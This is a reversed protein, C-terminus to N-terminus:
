LSNPAPGLPEPVPEIRGLMFVYGCIGLLLIIAAAGFARSFSNTPGAFYGTAIPAAIGALQNGFNLIGGVKGVSDRPAILSPLSWGVPAAASLGGLSISIWFAAVTPNQTFMAGAVALGLVTGTILVTKRVKSQDHGRRILEDVLWGGVVLDTLTGFLWPVSTFLISHQLNMHLASFYSPLWTLFLYFCYNYAFFGAVLGLVKRQRLLYALPAPHTEGTHVQHQADSKQIHAFEQASLRPDDQPDRYIFYFALFYVFSIVGTMAFSIRWGFRILMAGILPVGIGSAFKAAADFLATAMSREQSPFWYGIAKANAPFTPAEGVGLLLRSAFFSGLSPSAAAAFSAVSWMFASIRGVLRVGFRDLLVGVPLQLAAYTWVYASLLYGYAANSLGFEDYLAEHAVSLNVRDFYNILVGIGLLAAMRWRRRERM